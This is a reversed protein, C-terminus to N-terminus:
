MAAATAGNAPRMQGSPQMPSGGTMQRWSPRGFRLSRTVQTSQSVPQAMAHYVTTLLLQTADATWRRRCRIDGSVGHTAARGRGARPRRKGARRMARPLWGVHCIGGDLLDAVNGDDRVDVM